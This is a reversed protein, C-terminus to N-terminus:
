KSIIWTILEAFTSTFSIKKKQAYPVTNRNRLAFIIGVILCAIGTGKLGNIVFLEMMQDMVPQIASEPANSTRYRIWFPIVYFCLVFPIAGALFAMWGPLLAALGAVEHTLSTNRRRIM